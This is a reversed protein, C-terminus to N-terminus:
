QSYPVIHPPSTCGSGYWKYALSFYQTTAAIQPAAILLSFGILISFVFSLKRLACRLEIADYACVIIATIAAAVLMHITGHAHGALFSLAVVGGGLASWTAATLRDGARIAKVVALVGFPIYVLGAHLNPQAWARCAVASAFSFIVAGASSSLYSLGFTRCLAHMSLCGIWFHIVIFIDIFWPEGPTSFFSAALALPYLAGTQLEGIFSSGSLTGFSWLALEGSRTAAFVKTLWAYTQIATDHQVLFSADGRIVRGFVLATFLAYSFAALLAEVFSKRSNGM